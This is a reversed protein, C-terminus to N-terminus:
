ILEEVLVLIEKPLNSRQKYKNSMINALMILGTDM